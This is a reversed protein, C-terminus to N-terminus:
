EERNYNSVSFEIRNNLWELIDEYVEARNTENLIEHRAGSYINLEVDWFDAADLTEFVERPGRGYNGVPDDRGSCVLIPLSRDLKEVWSKDSVYSILFLLDSYARVTFHFNCLPDKEYASVVDEDRSIWSYVSAPNAIRRNSLGFMIRDITESRYMNGRIRCITRTLAIGADTGVKTNLTGMIVAGSYPFDNKALVARVVLSGMSHGLIYFPVEPNQTHIMKSLRLTDKALYHWGQKHAFFGLKEKSEASAGHGLHDHCCVMIGNSCLFNIFDEYRESYECMGHVIQLIARPKSYPKYVYYAISDTGSSSKFFGTEKTFNM